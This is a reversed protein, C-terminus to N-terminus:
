RIQVNEIEDLALYASAISEGARKRRWAKSSANASSLVRWYAWVSVVFGVIGVALSVILSRPHLVGDFGLAVVVPIWM